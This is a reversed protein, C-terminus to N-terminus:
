LDMIMVLGVPNLMTKVLTSAVNFCRQYLADNKQRQAVDNQRQKLTLSQRQILTACRQFDSTLNQKLMSRNALFNLSFSLM